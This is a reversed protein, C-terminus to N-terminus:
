DAGLPLFRDIQIKAVDPRAVVENQMFVINVVAM